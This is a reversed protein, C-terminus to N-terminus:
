IALLVCCTFTHSILQDISNFVTCLDSNVNSAGLLASVLTIPVNQESPVIKIASDLAIQCTLENLEFKLNCQFFSNKKM